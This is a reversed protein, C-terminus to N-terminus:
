GPSACAAGPTACSWLGTSRACSSSCGLTLSLSLTPIQTRAMVRVRLRLRVRVRVRVRLLVPAVEHSAGGGGASPWGLGAVGFAPPPALVASSTETSAHSELGFGM